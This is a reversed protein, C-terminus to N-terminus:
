EYSKACRQCRGCAILMEVNARSTTTAIGLRIGLIRAHDILSAVGPRLRASECAVLQQYRANKMRHIARLDVQDARSRAFHQLREIGGTVRLLTRYLDQDWHWDLGHAKFAENFARRHWEETEALTGDVDFIILRDSM